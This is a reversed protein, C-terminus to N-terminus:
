FYLSLQATITSHLHRYEQVGACRDGLPTSRYERMGIAM